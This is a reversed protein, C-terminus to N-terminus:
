YMMEGDMADFDMDDVDWKWKWHEVIGMDQIGQPWFTSSKIQTAMDLGSLVEIVTGDQEGVTIYIKKDDAFNLVYAGKEDYGVATVPLVSINTKAQILVDVMASMDSFIKEGQLDTLSAVVKYRVVGDIKEPSEDVEIVTGVFQKDPFADFVIETKQGAKLKLIDSQNAQMEIKIMDRNELVISKDNNESLNDGVQMDVKRVTGDFTATIHYNERESQVAELNKKQDELLSKANELEEDTYGKKVEEYTDRAKELANEAEKVALEKEEINRSLNKEKQDLDYLANKYALELKTFVLKKEEYEKVKDLYNIKKQSELTGFSVESQLEEIKKQTSDVGSNGSSKANEWLSKLSAITSETFWVSDVSNDAALAYNEGLNYLANYYTNLIEYSPVFVKMDYVVTTDKKGVPYHKRLDDINKKLDELLGYCKGLYSKAEAKYSSNRASFYISNTLYEWALETKLGLYEDMRDLSDKLDYYNSELARLTNEFKQLYDKQANDMKVKDEWDLLTEKYVKANLKNKEKELLYVTKKMKLNERLENLELEKIDKSHVLADKAKEVNIEARRVAYEASLVETKDKWNLLDKLDRHAKDYASRAKQIRSEIESMDLSALLQWQKVRMGPKVFVGTIKGSKVFKLTQENELKSTGVLKVASTIDGTGLTIAEVPPYDFSDLWVDDNGSFLFKYCFYGGVLLLGTILFFLWKKGNWLSFYKRFPWSILAWIKQLVKKM